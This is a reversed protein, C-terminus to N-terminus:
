VQKAQCPLGEAQFRKLLEVQHKEDRCEILVWYQEPITEQAKKSTRAEAAAV